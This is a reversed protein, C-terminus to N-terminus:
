DIFGKFRHDLQLRVGRGDPLMKELFTTGKSNTVRQFSGPSRLIERFHQIAQNHWTSPNGTVKGWIDPNRGAHKSLAHGLRTTGKYTESASRLATATNRVGLGIARAAGGGVRVISINGGTSGLGAVRLEFNRPHLKSLLERGVSPLRRAGAPLLSLAGGLARSSAQIGMKGLGLFGSAALVVQDAFAQGGTRLAAYQILREHCGSSPDDYDVLQDALEKCQIADAIATGGFFGDTSFCSRYRAWRVVFMKSPKKAEDCGAMADGFDDGGAQGGRPRVSAPDFVFPVQTGQDDYGYYVRRGLLPVQGGVLEEHFFVSGDDYYQEGWSGQFGLLEVEVLDGGADYRWRTIPLPQPSGQADVLERKILSGLSDTTDIESGEGPFTRTVVRGNWHQTFLTLTPPSVTSSIFDGLEVIRGSDGYRRGHEIIRGDVVEHTRSVFPGDYAVEQVDGNTSRTEKVKGSFYRTVTLVESGGTSSTTLTGGAGRTYTVVTGDPEIETTTTPDFPPDSSYTFSRTRGGASVIQRERGYPDFSVTELEDRYSGGPRLEYYRRVEVTRLPDTQGVYRDQHAYTVLARVQEPSSSPLSVSVSTEVVREEVVVRGLVDYEYRTILESSNDKEEKVRGAGDYAAVVVDTAGNTAAQGKTDKLRADADYTFHHEHQASAGFRRTTLFGSVDYTMDEIRPEDLHESRVLAGLQDFKGAYVAQGAKEIKIGTLVKSPTYEYRVIEDGAVIAQLVCDGSDYTYTSTSGGEKVSRVAGLRSTTVQEFGDARSSTETVDGTALDTQYTYTWTENPGGAIVQRKVRGLADYEFTTTVGSPDEETRKVRGLRDYEFTTGVQTLVSPRTVGAPLAIHQSCTNCITQVGLPQGFEADFGTTRVTNGELDQGDQDPQLDGNLPQSWSRNGVTQGTVVQQQVTNQVAKNTGDPHPAVFSTPFPSNSSADYTIGTIGAGVTYGDVALPGASVQAVTKSTVQLRDNASSSFGVDGDRAESTAFVKGTDSDSEWSATWAGCANQAQLGNGFGNLTVTTVRPSGVTPETVKRETKSPYEFTTMAGLVTASTVIEEDRLHLYPSAAGYAYSAGYVAPNVELPLTLAESAMHNRAWIRGTGTWGYEWKTDQTLVGTSEDRTERCAFRPNLVADETAVVYGCPDDSSTTDVDYLFKERFFAVGGALRGEVQRLKKLGFNRKWSRLEQHPKPFDPIEEYAFHFSMGGAREARVVWDTEDEYTLAISVSLPDDIETLMWRRGGRYTRRHSLRNFVYRTGFGDEYEAEFGGPLYNAPSNPDGDARTIKLRGGHNKDTECNTISTVELKPGRAVTCRPFDYAQGELVVQYRGPLEEQIYGEYNHMWGAGLPSLENRQNNYTRTFRRTIGKEPVVVDDYQRVLHGDAVNVGAIVMQGAATAAASDHFGVPYGFERKYSGLPPPTPKTPEAIVWFRQPPNGSGPMDAMDPPLPLAFYRAGDLGAVELQDLPEKVLGKPPSLESIAYTASSATYGDVNVEKIPDEQGTCDKAVCLKLIGQEIELPTLFFIADNPKSHATRPKRDISSPFAPEVAKDVTFASNATPSDTRPTVGYFNFRYLVNEANGSLYLEIYLIDESTIATPLWDGGCEGSVSTQGTTTPPDQVLTCEIGAEDTGFRMVYEGAGPTGRGQDDPQMLSLFYRYAIDGEHAGVAPDTPPMYRSVMSGDPMPKDDKVNENRAGFVANDIGIVRFEHERADPAIKRGYHPKRGARDRRVTCTARFAVECRAVIAGPVPGLRCPEAPRADLAAGSTALLGLLLIAANM